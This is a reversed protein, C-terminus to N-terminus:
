RSRLPLRMCRRWRTRTNKAKPRARGDVMIFSISPVEVLMPKAKPLYLDKYEKKYDLKDPM